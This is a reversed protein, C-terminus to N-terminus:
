PRTREDDDDDDDDDDGVKERLAAALSEAGALHRRLGEVEV